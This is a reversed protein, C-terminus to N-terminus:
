VLNYLPRNFSPTFGKKTLIKNVEKPEFSYVDFQGVSNNGDPSYGVQVSCKTALLTGGGCDLLDLLLDLKERTSLFISSYPLALRYVAVALKLQEDTVEFKGAEYSTGNAAKLRPIGIIPSIKYKDKIYNAHQIM